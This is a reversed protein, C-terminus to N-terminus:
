SFVPLIRTSGMSILQGMVRILGTLIGDEFFNPM